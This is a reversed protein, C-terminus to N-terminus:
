QKTVDFTGTCGSCTWKGSMKNGVITAEFPLPLSGNIGNIKINWTGTVKNGAVTAPSAAASGPLTNVLGCGNNSRIEFGAMEAATTVSTSGAMTNELTGKNNFTCTGNSQSHSYTGAWTGALTIFQATVTSAAALTTTCTASGTCGGGTWGAFISGPEPQASLTVKTGAAFDGKCSGSACTVGPPDSTVAGTGGGTSTVTLTQKTATSPQTTSGKPKTTTTDDDDDGTTTDDDDDDSRDPLDRSEYSGVSPAACGVAAFSLAMMATSLILLSRM